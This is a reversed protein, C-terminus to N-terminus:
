DFPATATFSSKMDNPLRAPVVSSVVPALSSSKSRSTLPLVPGEVVFMISVLPQSVAVDCGALVTVEGPNFGPLVGDAGANEQDVGVGLAAAMAGAGGGVLLKLGKFDCCCCDFKLVTVGSKPLRAGMFGDLVCNEDGRWGVGAEDNWAMVGVTDCDVDEEMLQFVEFAALEQAEDAVLEFVKLLPRLLGIDEMDRLGCRGATAELEDDNEKGGGGPAFVDVAELKPDDANLRCAGGLWCCGFKLMGDVNAFGGPDIPLRSFLPFLITFLLLGMPEIIPPGVNLEIALMFPLLITLM